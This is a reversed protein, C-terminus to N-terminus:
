GHWGGNDNDESNFSQHHSHELEDASEGTAAHTREDASGDVQEDAEQQQASWHCRRQRHWKDKSHQKQHLANRENRQRETEPISLKLTSKLYHRNSQEDSMGPTWVVADPQTHRWSGNSLTLPGFHYVNNLAPGTFEPSGRREPFIEAHPGDRSSKWNFDLIM